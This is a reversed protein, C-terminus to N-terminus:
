SFTSAHPLMPTRNTSKQMPRSNRRLFRTSLPLVATTPAAVMMTPISTNPYPTPRKESSSLIFERKRAAISQIDLVVMTIFAMSSAPRLLARKTFPAVLIRIKSSMTATTSNTSNDLIATFFLKSPPSSSFFTIISATVSTTHNTHPIRTMGVNNRKTRLCRFSSVSIIREKPRQRPMTSVASSAPNLLASPANTIPITSASVLSDCRMSCSIDGSFFTNAAINKTDTPIIILGDDSTSYQGAMRKTDKTITTPIITKPVRPQQHPPSVNLSEISVPKENTCIPSNENMM